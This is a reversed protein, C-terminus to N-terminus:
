SQKRAENRRRASSLAASGATLGVLGGLAGLSPKLAKPPHALRYRVGAPLDLTQSIPEIVAREWLSKRHLLGM